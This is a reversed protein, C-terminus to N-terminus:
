NGGPYVQSGAISGLNIISGCNNKMMLPIVARAMYLFGKINTDIMVDWDDSNGDYIPEQGKALGANNIFIDPLINQSELEKGFAITAAKDRVDFIRSLVQIPYKEKLEKEVALLKNERRATLILNAGNQAYIEACAKGIGSSAGTILVTKNKFKM